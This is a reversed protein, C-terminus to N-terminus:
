THGVDLYISATESTQQRDHNPIHTRRNKEVSISGTLRRTSPTRVVSVVSTRRRRAPKQIYHDFKENLPHPVMTIETVDDPIGAKNASGVYFNVSKGATEQSYLPSVTDEWFM